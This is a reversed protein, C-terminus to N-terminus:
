LGIADEITCHGDAEILLLVPSQAAGYIDLGDLGAWKLAAGFYGGLNGCCYQEPFTLPSKAVIACRSAATSRIGSLPGNMFFLHNDPNFATTKKDIFEWYLRSAIGKGGVFKESYRQTPIVDFSGHTLNVGLIKNALGYVEAM